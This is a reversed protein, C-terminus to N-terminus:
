KQKLIFHQRKAIVEGCKPDVKEMMTSFFVFHKVKTQRTTILHNTKSQKANVLLLDNDIWNKWRNSVKDCVKEVCIKVSQIPLFHREQQVIKKFLNKVSILAEDVVKPKPPIYDLLWHGFDKM